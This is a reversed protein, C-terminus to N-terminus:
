QMHHSMIIYPASVGRRRGETRQTCAARLTIHGTRVIRIKDTTSRIAQRNSGTNPKLKKLAHADHRAPNSYYVDIKGEELNTFHSHVTSHLEYMSSNV